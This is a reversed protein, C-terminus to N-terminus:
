RIVEKHREEEMLRACELAEMIQPDTIFNKGLRVRENAWFKVTAPAAADRALLVFLREMPQARNLCSTPDNLEDCKRM